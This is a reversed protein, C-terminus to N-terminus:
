DSWEEDRILLVSLPLPPSCAGQTSPFDPTEGCGSLELLDNIRLLSIHGTEAVVASLAFCNGHKVDRAIKPKKPTSEVHPFPMSLSCNGTPSELVELKRKYTLLLSSNDVNLNVEGSAVQKPSARVGRPKGQTTIDKKPRGRSPRPLQHGAGVTFTDVSVVNPSSEHNSNHDPSPIASSLSSHSISPISTSKLDTSAISTPLSLPNPTLSTPIFNTNPSESLSHDFKPEPANAPNNLMPKHSHAVNVSHPIHSPLPLPNPSIITTSPPNPNISTNPQHLFTKPSLPDAAASNAPPDPNKGHPTPYHDPLPNKERWTQLAQQQLPTISDQPSNIKPQREVFDERILSEAVMEAHAVEDFSKAKSGEKRGLALINSNPIPDGNTEDSGHNAGGEMGSNEAQRWEVTPSTARRRGQQTAPSARMWVGFQANKVENNDVDFFRTVCNLLDHGVLGCYHCFTPLREYRFEAWFPPSDAMKVMCGRRLPQTVDLHVRVRVFRGEKSGTAPIAVDDVPGIKAGIKLGIAKSIFHLSLGWIQVWLPTYKFDYSSPLKSPNWKELILFHNNFFWPTGNLIRIVDVESPLVFQYIGKGIEMVRFNKPNGWILEMTSKLGGLNVPKQSVVRGFLSTRCEEESARVDDDILSVESQEEETLHFSRFRTSLDDDLNLPAQAM